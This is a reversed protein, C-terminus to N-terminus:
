HFVNPASEAQEAHCGGLVGRLESNHGQPTDTREKIHHLTQRSGAVQMHHASLTHLQM